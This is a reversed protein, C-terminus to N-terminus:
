NLKWQNKKRKKQSIVFSLKNIKIQIDRDDYRLNERELREANTLNLNQNQRQRHFDVGLCVLGVLGIANKKPLWGSLRNIHIGLRLSKLKV